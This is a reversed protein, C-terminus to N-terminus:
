RPRGASPAGAAQAEPDGSGAGSKTRDGCVNPLATPAHMGTRGSSQASRAPSERARPRRSRRGALAPTIRADVPLVLVLALLGGEPAPGQSQDPLDGLARADADSGRVSRWAKASWMASAGAVLPGGAAARDRPARSWSFRGRRSARRAAETATWPRRSWSDVWRGCVWYLRRGSDFRHLRSQLGGRLWEAM